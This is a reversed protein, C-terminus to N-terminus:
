THIPNVDPMNIVDQMNKLYLYIYINIYLAKNTVRLHIIIFEESTTICINKKGCLNNCNLSLVNKVFSFFFM